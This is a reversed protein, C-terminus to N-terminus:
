MTFISQFVTHKIITFVILLRLIRIYTGIISICYTWLHHFYDTIRSTWINSFDTIYNTTINHLPIAYTKKKLNRFYNTLYITTLTQFLAQWNVLLFIQFRYTKINRSLVIIPINMYQSFLSFLVTNEVNPVNTRWWNVDM